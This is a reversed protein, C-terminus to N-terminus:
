SPQAAAAKMRAKDETSLEVSLVTSSYHQLYRRQREFYSPPVMVFFASSGPRLQDRLQDYFWSDIGLRSGAIFGEIMSQWANNGLAEEDVFVSEQEVIVEGIQQYTVIAANHFYLAGTRQHEQLIAGVQKAAHKDQFTLAFLVSEAM